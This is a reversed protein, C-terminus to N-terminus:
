PLTNAGEGDDHCPRAREVSVTRHGRRPDSNKNL